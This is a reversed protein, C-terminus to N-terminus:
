PREGAAKVAERGEAEWIAPLAEGPIEPDVAAQLAALVATWWAALDMSDVVTRLAVPTPEAGGARLEAAAGALFADLPIRVGLFPAGPQDLRDLGGMLLAPACDPNPRYALGMARLRRAAAGFDQPLKANAWEKLGIERDIEVVRGRADRTVSASLRGEKAAKSVAQKTAGVLAAFDLSKM